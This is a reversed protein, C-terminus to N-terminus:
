IGLADAYDRVSGQTVFALTYAPRFQMRRPGRPNTEAPIYRTGPNQKLTSSGPEWREEFIESVREM